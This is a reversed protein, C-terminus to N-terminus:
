YDLFHTSLVHRAEEKSAFGYIIRDRLFDRFDLAAQIYVQMTRDMEELDDESWYPMKFAKTYKGLLAYKLFIFRDHLTLHLKAGALSNCEKCAPVKLFDADRDLEDAFIYDVTALSPVHDLTPAALGCYYCTFRCKKNPCYLKYLHNHRKYLPRNDSM